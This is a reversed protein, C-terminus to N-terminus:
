PKVDSIWRADIVSDVNLKRKLLGMDNMVESLHRAMKKLGDPQQMMKQNEERTLLHICTLYSVIDEVTTGLDGAMRRRGDDANDDLYQRTRFYGEMLVNVKDQLHLADKRIALVDMIEGPIDASSFIPKMGLALLDDSFPQYTVAVDIQGASVADKLQTIPMAAIKVDKVSLNAKALMSRLMLSGVANLEVGIRKGAVDSLTKITPRALVVDAGNSYDFVMVINLEIGEQILTLAEDLTLGAAQLNGNRLARMVDLASSLRVIDIGPLYDLKKGLYLPEYGLWRNIGVKFTADSDECSTLLSLCLMLVLLRIILCGGSTLDM